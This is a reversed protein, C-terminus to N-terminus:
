KSLFLNPMSYRHNELDTCFNAVSRYLKNLISIVLSHGITPILYGYYQNEAAFIHGQLLSLFFSYFFDWPLSCFQLLICCYQFFSPHLHLWLKLFLLFKLSQVPNLGMVKANCTCFQVLLAFTTPELGMWLSFNKWTMKELLTIAANTDKM